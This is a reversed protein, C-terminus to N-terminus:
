QTKILIFSVTVTVTFQGGCSFLGCEVDTFHWGVVVHFASSTWGFLLINNEELHQHSHFSGTTNHPMLPQWLFRNPQLTHWTSHWALLKLLHEGKAHVCAELREEMSWDCRGCNRQASIWDMDWCVAAAVRGYRPNTPRSSVGARADHGLHPLSGSKSSNASWMDPSIFQTDWPASARSHRSHVICTLLYTFLFKNTSLLRLCWLCLMSACFMAQFICGDLGLCIQYAPAHHQQFVFLDGRWCHQPDSTAARRCWCCTEITSSTSKQELSLLFSIPVPVVWHRYRSRAWLPSASLPVCAYSVTLLSSRSRPKWSHLYEIM